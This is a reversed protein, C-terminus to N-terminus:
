SSPFGADVEPVPVTEECTLAKQVFPIACGLKIADFGFALDFGVQAPSEFTGMVEVKAGAIDFGIPTM